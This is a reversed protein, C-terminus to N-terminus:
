ILTVLAPPARESSCTYDAHKAVIRSIPSSFNQQPQPLFLGGGNALARLKFGSSVLASAGQVQRPRSVRGEGSVFSGPSVAVTLHDHGDNLLVVLPSRLLKSTLVVDNPVSDGSMDRMEPQLGGPPATVAISQEAGSAFQLRVTYLTFRAFAQEVVTAAELSHDGDFGTAYRSVERNNGLASPEPAVPFWSFNSAHNSAGARVQSRGMDQSHAGVGVALTFALALLFKSSSRMFTATVKADSDERCAPAGRAWLWYRRVNLGGRPGLEESPRSV